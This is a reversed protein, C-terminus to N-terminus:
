RRLTKIGALKQMRDKSASDDTGNSQPAIIRAPEKRDLAENITQPRTKKIKQGVLQKQLAEFLNKAEGISGSKSIAEAIKKKQRENLSTSVLIQNTYMLRANHLNVRGVEASLREIVLEYKDNREKLANIAADKEKLQKEFLLQNEQQQEDEKEEEDDEEEDSEEGQVEQAKAVDAAFQRDVDPTMPWGSKAPEYDIKVAEELIEVLDEISIDDVDDLDVEHQVDEQLPADLTDIDTEFPNPPAKDAEAALEDRLQNFDIRIIDGEDPCHGELAADPIQDIFESPQNASDAEPEVGFSSLDPEELADEPATNPLSLDQELLKSVAERVETQYKEVVAAEAKREAVEQLEKADIIAQDLLSM